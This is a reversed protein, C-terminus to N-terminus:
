DSSSFIAVLRLIEVYLWVLTILLGMGSFWEMYAPAGYQEGKEFNDFDLLLNFAAVGIILLSIGIGIPSADHLFPMNIGFLSLVINVIYVLAIAGTAMFIGSRLKNTVKIIGAKYIFLMTFLVAMTLTVAQFIIGDFFQAYMASVGGVFLGELGAYLPALTPSLHPRSSAILVVIFGAIAGGWIFIPNPNTFGVWATLLMIGALIFTKNIAGQVTMKEGRVILGSDLTEHSAKQFAEEQLVPNRSEFFGKRRSM